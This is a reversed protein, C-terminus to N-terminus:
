IEVGICAEGDANLLMDFDEIRILATGKNGWNRGWSNKLRFYGTKLNVGNLVYCHGGQLIGTPHVIGKDPYSMNLYWDTGVIVPGQTLIVNIVDFIDRAWRYKSVYGERQLIKIGGRVSTGTYDTGPYEDVKQAEYYVYQPKLVPLRGGHTIPGDELWHVCGYGVCYPTSRQNGWWGNQWWYRYTRSTSQRRMPYKADREDEVYIRGFTRKM